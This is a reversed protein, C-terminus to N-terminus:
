EVLLDTRQRESLRLESWRAVRGLLSGRLSGFGTQLRELYLPYQEPGDRNIWQRNLNKPTWTINREPSVAIVVDLWPVRLARRAWM